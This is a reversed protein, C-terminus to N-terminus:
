ITDSDAILLLQEITVPHLSFAVAMEWHKRNEPRKIEQVSWGLIWNRKDTRQDQIPLKSLVNNKNFYNYRFRWDPTNMYTGERVTLKYWNKELIVLNTNFVPRVAESGSTYYYFRKELQYLIPKAQFGNLDKIVRNYDIIQLQSSPFLTTLFYDANVISNNGIMEWRQRRFGGRHHKTQSISYLYKQKL